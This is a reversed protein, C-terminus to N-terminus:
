FSFDEEDIDFGLGSSGGSFGFDAALDEAEAIGSSLLDDDQETGFRNPEDQQGDPIGPPDPIRPPRFTTTFGGRGTPAGRSTTRTTTRATTRATTDALPRLGQRQQVDQATDQAAQTDTLGRSGIDGLARSGTDLSTQTAELPDTAETTRTTAGVDTGALDGLAAGDLRALPQSAQQRAQEGLLGGVSAGTTVGTVGALPASDLDVSGRTDLPDRPVGARNEPPDAFDADLDPDPRGGGPRDRGDRGRGFGRRSRDAEIRRGSRVEDTRPRPPGLDDSGGSGRDRQRGIQLQARDDELFDDVRFTNDPADVDIDDLAGLGRSAGRRGLSAAGGAALGGAIGGAAFAGARGPNDQAFEVGEEGLAAATDIDRSAQEPSSLTIPAGPGGAPEVRDSVEDVTRVGLAGAGPLNFGGVASTTFDRALQGRGESGEVGGAPGVLFDAEGVNEALDAAPDTIEDDFSRAADDLLGGLDQDAGPVDISAVFGGGALSQEETEFEIDFEGGLSQGAAFDQEGVVFRDEAFAPSAEPTIEQAIDQRREGVAAATEDDLTAQYAGDGTPELAVDEPSVDIGTQSDLDAAADQRAQARQQDEFQERTEDDLTAAFGSDTDSVAVDDIDIDLGSVQEDFQDAAEQRADFRAQDRQQELADESVRATGDDLVIDDADFGEFEAAAQERAQQERRREITEVTDTELTAQGGDLTIDSSDIDVAGIEDDLDNAAEVRADREARFEAAERLQSSQTTERLQALGEPDIENLFQEPNQEALQQRQDITEDFQAIAVDLDAGVSGDPARFRDRFPATQEDDAGFAEISAEVAEPELAAAIELPDDSRPSLDSAGSRELADRIVLRQNVDQAQAVVEAAAAGPDNFGVPIGGTEDLVDQASQAQVVGEDVTVGEDTFEVDAPEVDVQGLESDFQEAAEQRRLQQRADGALTAGDDGLDVDDTGVDVGEFQEDFSQAAQQRRVQQRAGEALSAQEGDLTVDGAGIDIGPFQEDFSEVADARRERELADDTPSAEFSGDGARSVTLDEPGFDDFSAAAQQRAERLRRQQVTARARSTAGTRVGGRITDRVSVDGEDVGLDDARQQREDLQERRSPEEEDDGQGNRDPLEDRNGSM